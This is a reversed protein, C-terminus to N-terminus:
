WGVSKSAAVGNDGTAERKLNFQETWLGTVQTNDSHFFPDGIPAFRQKRLMQEYSANLIWTLMENTTM